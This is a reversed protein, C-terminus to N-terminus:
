EVQVAFPDARHFLCPEAEEAAEGVPSNHVLMDFGLFLIPDGTVAGVEVPVVAMAM